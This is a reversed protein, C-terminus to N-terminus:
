LKKIQIKFPVLEGIHSFNLPETGTINIKHNIWITSTKATCSKIVDGYWYLEYLEKMLEYLDEDSTVTPLRGDFSLIIDIQPLKCFEREASHCHLFKLLNPSKRPPWLTRFYGKFHIINMTKSLNEKWTKQEQLHSVNLGLDKYLWARNIRPWFTFKHM